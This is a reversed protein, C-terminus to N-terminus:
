KTHNVTIIFFLGEIDTYYLIVLQKLPFLFLNEHTHTYNKRRKSESERKVTISNMMKNKQVRTVTQTIITVAVVCLFFGPILLPYLLPPSLLLLPTKKTYIYFTFFGWGWRLFFSTIHACVFVVVVVVLAAGWTKGEISGKFFTRLQVYILFFHAGYFFFFFQRATANILNLFFFRYLFITDVM